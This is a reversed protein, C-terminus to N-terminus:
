DNRGAIINNETLFANVFCTNLGRRMLEPWCKIGVCDLREREAINTIARYLKASKEIDEQTAEGLKGIRRIRAMDDEAPNLEQYEDLLTLLSIHITEVGLIRRANLEDYGSNYFGTPRYGFLGFRTQRLRAAASVVRLYRVIKDMTADDDAAGYFFTFRRGIKTLAASNMIAGCLSNTDLKGGCMAPEPVAWIVLQKHNIKEVLSVPVDDWTFAGQLLILVDFNYGEFEEAISLVKASGSVVDECTIVSIGYESLSRAAHKLTKRAAEIPFHPASTCVLGVKLEKSKKEM